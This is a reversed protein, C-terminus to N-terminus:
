HKLHENGLTLLSTNGGVAATNISLVRETAFRRLYNPGGAKPGTGSLGEGGFPQSGVVAGIMNRNAYINGCRARQAIFNIVSNIRSHIGLTLGYGSANIDNIVQELAAARYRIVHLIPGFVEDPLQELRDIEFATPPFFTGCATHDDLMVQHILRAEHAMRDVHRALGEIATDSIVPGIDTTLRAPDGISLQDMAGKLLEIIRPAIEDQVYLVRLASCRQGASNFASTVADSVVQEPLASSDVIMCNQGGTEAILPLIERRQALLQQIRHAVATSGTFAVGAIRRDGILADGIESGEGPIFHLVDLPVGAEHLLEVVKFGSLPTLSAPKAIVANGAALAAVVQGTFIAVPFNWPSICAFVGRGHLRLENREGTISTMVSAEAFQERALQAYYRCFDVAERVEAHADNLSRGGELVCLAILEAQRQEMLAAADDLIEARRRAPTRDWGPAARHAAALAADLQEATALRVTGISLQHDAPAHVVRGDDITAVGSVIPGAQWGDHHSAEMESDLRLLADLDFLNLGRSNLRAQGHIHRPLPIKPHPTCDLMELEAVPDAIIEDIPINRDELRNVFSSNAGNELLRRVLYPLLEKHNGVPAYVRCRRVLKSHLAHHYLSDGMGHLRQFEYRADDHAMVLISALTHANHTAFQPYFHEGAELLRRACALYAVDTAVKRTYVPYNDLGREQARKIEADWYAGKVLRVPITCGTDRALEILWDIVYPARKQYAQVALGLGHWDSLSSDRLVREFVALSLELREAEEADITLNIHADRALQALQLVRPTLEDIVRQWKGFEYRPHLASLKVSIGPNDFLDGQKGSARGVAAISDRYATFYREADAETLAAEGLMDFSYRYRRNDGESSRKLAEDITAGMVFQHGMLRMAQRLASRIVPEGSRGILRAILGGPNDVLDPALKVLRGTLMLGWTSANVFLSKSQGLHQAWGADGLKDQILRDATEADPIRLLAEALCMLMVGEESSLDYERMFAEVAGRHLPHERVNATLDRALDIVRHQNDVSLRAQGLLRQLLESEDALYARRMALMLDSSPAPLSDFLM